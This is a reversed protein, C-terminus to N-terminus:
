LVEIKLVRLEKQVHFSPEIYLPLSTHGIESTDVIQYVCLKIWWLKSDVNDIVHIFQIDINDSLDVFNMWMRWILNSCMKQTKQKIMKISPKWSWLCQMKKFNIEFM